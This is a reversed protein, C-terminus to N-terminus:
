FKLDTLRAPGNRIAQIQAAGTPIVSPSTAFVRGTELLSTILFPVNWYGHGQDVYLYLIRSGPYTEASIAERTPEFGGIPNTTLTETYQPYYQLNAFLRYGLVGVANPHTQLTQFTDFPVEPIEVYGGDKRFTGCVREYRTADTHKLAAITPFSNCGAEFVIERFAIGTASQVPPGFVEIPEDNFAGNVSFWTTNPNSILLEPHAPDPIEAALALFIDRPSLALAGYLRGRTLVIAQHGSQVEAISGLNHVCVEYEARTIRRPISAVALVGSSGASRSAACLQTLADSSSDAATVSVPVSSSRGFGDALSNMYEQLTPPTILRIAQRPGTSGGGPGPQATPAISNAAAPAVANRSSDPSNGASSRTDAVPQSPGVPATLSGAPSRNAAPSDGTGETKSDQHQAKILHRAFDPMGNVTLLSIAFVSGGFLLGFILVRLISRRPAATAPPLQRDLRAKLGAVFGAPPEVRIRHLFDDNM